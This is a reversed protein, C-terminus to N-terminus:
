LPPDLFKQNSPGFKPESLVTSSKNHCIVEWLSSWTNRLRHVRASNACYLYQKTLLPSCIMPPNCKQIDRSNLKTAFHLTLEMLFDVLEFTTYSGTLTSAFFKLGLCVNLTFPTPYPSGSEGSGGGPDAVSNIGKEWVPGAGMSMAFIFKNEFEAISIRISLIAFNLVVYPIWSCGAICVNFNFDQGKTSFLSHRKPLNPKILCLELIRLKISMHYFHFFFFGLM